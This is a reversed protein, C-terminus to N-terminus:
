QVDIGRHAAAVATSHRRHSRPLRTRPTNFLEGSQFPVPSLSFADDHAVRPEAKFRFLNKSEPSRLSKDSNKESLPASRIGLLEGRLLQTYAANNEDRTADGAAGSSSTKCNNEDLLALGSELNSAVRSPIFRDSYKPCRPDDRSSSAASHGRHSYEYAGTSSEDM